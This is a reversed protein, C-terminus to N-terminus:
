RLNDAILTAINKLFTDYLGDDPLAHTTLEVVKAGTESGIAVAV